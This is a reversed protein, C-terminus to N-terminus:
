IQLNEVKRRIDSSSGSKRARRRLVGIALISVIAQLNTKPLYPESAPRVAPEAQDPRHTGSEVDTNWM